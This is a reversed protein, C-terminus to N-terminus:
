AMITSTGALLQDLKERVEDVGIDAMAPKLITHVNAGLPGHREPNSFGPFLGLTRCGTPGIMQLPGTDNGIAAAAGRALVFIQFLSTKGTLDVAKPCERRIAANVDAEDKTGLLVPTYGRKLVHKAIAAYRDTPWRKGARTPSCGAVFLVYPRPLEFASIDAQVWSLDDYVANPIGGAVLIDRLASFVHKRRREALTGQAGIWPGRYLKRYLGTRDNNQLDYVFRFGSQNLLRRLAWWGKFDWWGPRPDIIVDDVYGPEMAMAAFPKTTMLTIHADANHRRIAQMAGLSQVFDGLAGLKIVLIKKQEAM